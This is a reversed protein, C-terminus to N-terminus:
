LTLNYLHNWSLVVLCLNILLLASLFYIKLIRFKIFRLRNSQETKKLFFREFNFFINAFQPLPFVIFMLLVLFFPLSHSLFLSLTLYTFFYYSPSLIAFQLFSFFFFLFISFSLFFYLTPPPPGPPHHIPSSCQVTISCILYDKIIITRLELIKTLFSVM